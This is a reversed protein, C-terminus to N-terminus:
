CFLFITSRFSERFSTYVIKPLHTLLVFYWYPCAFLCVNDMKSQITFSLRRSDNLNKKRTKKQQRQNVIQNFFTELRSLRTILSSVTYMLYCNDKLQAKCKMLVWQPKLPPYQPKSTKHKYSSNRNTWYCQWKTSFAYGRTGDVVIRVEVLQKQFKLHFYVIRQQESVICICVFVNLYLYM